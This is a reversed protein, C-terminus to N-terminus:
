SGRHNGSALTGLKEPSDLFRSLKPTDVVFGATTVWVQSGLVQSASASPDLPKQQHHHNKLVLNRQTVKSGTRSSALQQISMLM